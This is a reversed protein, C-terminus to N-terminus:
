ARLRYLCADVPWEHNTPHQRDHSNEAEIQLRVTDSTWHIDRFLALCSSIDTAPDHDFRFLTTHSPLFSTDLHTHASFPEEQKGQVLTLRSDSHWIESLFYSHRNHRKKFSALALNFDSNALFLVTNSYSHRVTDLLRRGLHEM